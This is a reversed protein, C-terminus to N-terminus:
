LLKNGWYNSTFDLTPSHRRKGRAAWEKDVFFSSVKRFKWRWTEFLPRELFPFCIKLLTELNEPPDLYKQESTDIKQGCQRWCFFFFFFFLLLTFSFWGGKKGWDAGLAGGGGRYFATVDASTELGFRSLPRHACARSHYSIKSHNLFILKDNCAKIQRHFGWFHSLPLSIPRNLIAETLTATLTRGRLLLHPFYKRELNYQREHCLRRFRIGRKTFDTLHRRQITWPVRYPRM